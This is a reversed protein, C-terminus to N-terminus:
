WWSRSDSGARGRRDHRFGRRVGAVEIETWAGGVWVVLLKGAPGMADALTRVVLEVVVALRLGVRAQRHRLQGRRPANAMEVGDWSLEPAVRRM